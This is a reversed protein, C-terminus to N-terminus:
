MCRERAALFRKTTSLHRVSENRGLNRAEIDHPVPELIKTLGLFDLKIQRLQPQEEFLCLTRAASSVATVPGPLKDVQGLQQCDFALSQLAPAVSEAQAREHVASEALFRSLSLACKM